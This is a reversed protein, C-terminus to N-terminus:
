DIIFNSKKKKVKYLSYMYGISLQVNNLGFDPDVYGYNTVQTDFFNYRVKSNSYNTLGYLYRADIFAFGYGLKYTIGGGFVASFNIKNRQSDMSISAGAFDNQDTIINKRILENQSSLLYDLSFGSRVFFRIKRTGISYKLTLPTSISTQSETTNLESSNLIPQKSSFNKTTYYGEVTLFLNKYLLLDACVGFNLGIGGTFKVPIVETNGVGYTSGANVASQNAGISVGFSINPLVNFSEYLKVYEVPDLAKNPQYDPEYVLLENMKKEANRNEDLFLYSLIILRYGQLKETKTFGDFMCDELDNAITSLIGQEYNKQMEKLKQSCSSKLPIQASSAFVVFPLMYQIAKKFIRISM